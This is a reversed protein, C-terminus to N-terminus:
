TLKKWKRYENRVREISQELREVRKAKEESKEAESKYMEALGILQEESKSKVNKFATILKARQNLCNVLSKKTVDSQAKHAALQEQLSRTSELNSELNSQHAEVKKDTRQCTQELETKFKAIEGNIEACSASDESSKMKLLRNENEVLELKARLKNLDKMAVILDDLYPNQVNLEDARTPMEAKTARLKPNELGDSAEPWDVVKQHEAELNAGALKQREISEICQDLYHILSPKALTNKAQLLDRVQVLLQQNLRASGDHRESIAKALLLCQTSQPLERLEFKLKSLFPVDVSDLGAEALNGLVVVATIYVLRLTLYLNLM